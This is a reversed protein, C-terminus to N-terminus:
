LSGAAAALAATAKAMCGRKVPYTLMIFMAPLGIVPGSIFTLRAAGAAQSAAQPIIGPRRADPGHGVPGAVSVPIEKPAGARDRLAPGLVFAEWKL